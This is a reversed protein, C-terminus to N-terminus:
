TKSDTKQTKFGIIPIIDQEATRKQKRPEFLRLPDLRKRLEKALAMALLAADAGTKRIAPTCARTGHKRLLVM